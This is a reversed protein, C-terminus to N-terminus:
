NINNRKFLFYRFKFYFSRGPKQLSYNDYLLENTINRAGLAFNYRGNKVTYTVNVDHSFQRPIYMDGGESEWDKYYRHTYLLNYGLSLINGKNLFNTLNYNADVNGFLYPINPIQDSYRYDNPNGKNRMDQYTLNTGLSFKNKFFYRVELEGGVSLVKELNESSAFGKNSDVVRKIFDRIDRYIFGADLNITHDKNVLHNYSVNFNLNRSNEPNLATNGRELSGDGFLEKPTPLRYTKEASVKLQLEKTLFYTAAAGYGILSYDNTRIVFKGSSNQSTDVPSKVYTYYHKVFALANWKQTPAIKYSLGLVNKQSKRDGSNKNTVLAEDKESRRFDSFINNLSLFHKGAIAYNINSTIYGSKDISEAITKDAEGQSTNPIYEGTWNYTRALTDINNIRNRDYRAALSINLDRAFLNRKEYELTPSVNKTKREKGGFAIRMINANQIEAYEQTYMIGFALRNAWSKNVVGIKATVAENHYRDHFRRFWKTEKIFNSTELDLYESVKVKYDNDSYNQYASLQMTIGNQMTHSFNLSSKHTNFSGYSYSADLITNTSKETVINIAGGLADAGFEVPVVGKYVEIREAVGLPISSIPFGDGSADLPVGDMFFKVHRGTFGNLSIQASSGVGGDERIKVGTIKNLTQAIDMNTNRLAKADIAVVNYASENIKKVPSKGEVVVEKLYQDDEKLQIHLVQKENSKIDVSKEFTVYGVYKVGLTYSGPPVHFIFKGERDTDTSLNTGKLYVTAYSLPLNDSKVIGILLSTRNHQAFIPNVGLVIIIITWFVVLYTKFLNM